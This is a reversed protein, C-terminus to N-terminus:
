RVDIDADAIVQAEYAKSDSRGHQTKLQNNLVQYQQDKMDSRQGPIVKQLGIVTVNGDRDSVSDFIIAEEGLVLAFVSTNVQFGTGSNAQTVEDYSQYKFQEAKALEDAAEGIKLKEITADAMAQLAEETKQKTLTKVIKSKVEDIDKVREPAHSAKRIVLAKSEGVEIVKSNYGKELVDESFAIDRFEANNAVGKGRKRTFAETTDVQLSLAKAVSQLDPSSFVLEGFEEFKAAFIEEAETTKLTQEISKKRGEYSPPLNETLSVLKIFHTGADTTVAGSIKGEELEYAANEFAEPFVGATLVGLSGGNDKSGSDESYEAALAAFDEGAALKEEVEAVKEESELLIHAINYEKTAQFQALEQEYQARVDEETIDLGSAIKSVSLEIYEVTMNEPDIFEQTNEGYYAAVDEDTVEIKGRVLTKPIELTYFSRKQQTLTIISALEPATSFASAQVIQTHQSSLFDNELEQRFSAPTYGFRSVTQRFVEQDFKGDVQFQPIELIANKAYDKAIGMGGQQAAVVLAARNTLQEIVPGRLNEDKLYDANPDVGERNLYQQRRRDIGRLVDIETIDYGDVSAANTGAASGLFEGGVGTLVLPVIFLVLVVGAVVTGKLSERINLLM